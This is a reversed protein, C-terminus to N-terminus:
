VLTSNCDKFAQASFLDSFDISLPRPIDVVNTEFNMLQPAKGVKSSYQTFSSPLGFESLDFNM